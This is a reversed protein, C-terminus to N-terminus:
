AGRGRMSAIIDDIMASLNGLAEQVEMFREEIGEPPADGMALADDAGEDSYDDFGDMGDMGDSDDYGDALMGPGGMDDAYLDDDAMPDDETEQKKTNPKKTTAPKSKGIVESFKKAM